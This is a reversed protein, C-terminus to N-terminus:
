DAAICTNNSYSNYATLNQLESESLGENLEAVDQQSAGKPIEGMLKIWTQLGAAADEGMEEPVELQEAEQAFAKMRRIVTADDASQDSSTAEYFARYEDCFKEQASPGKPEETGGCATLLAAACALAAVPLVFRMRVSHGMM